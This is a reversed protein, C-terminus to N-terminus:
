RHSRSAESSAPSATSSTTETRPGSQTTQPEKETEVRDYSRFLHGYLLAYGLQLAATVFFPLALAGADLMYGSITPGAASPLRMSLSNISVAFGRRQDRTLSASLASRAGTTGRSLASRVVYIVSTLWFTPMLPLLVLLVTAVVRLWVVSRVMGYRQSLWGTVLSAIGTFAFSVALTAGIEATSAGFKLSFWYAMMPSTLGVALGNLTNVACLKLISTNEQRRISREQERARRRAEQDEEEVAKEVSREEDPASLIIAACVLSLVAMLFFLPRFSLAGPLADKWFNNAGAAVAGIAMGFFGVATNLSFINGRDARKVVSALWAQEAPSFPGTAGSQGRGFGTVIIVVSLLVPNATVTTVLAAIVTMGEYVLLFKKRGTRDSAVGVFLILAAGFLGALTLVGGIAPASWHMAKLYLTLDVM